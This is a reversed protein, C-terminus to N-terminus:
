HGLLTLIMSGKQRESKQVFTEGEMILKQAKIGRTALSEDRNLSLQPSDKGLFYRRWRGKSSEFKMYESKFM